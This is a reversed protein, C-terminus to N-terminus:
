KQRIYFFFASLNTDMWSVRMELLMHRRQALSARLVLLLAVVVLAPPSPRWMPIRRSALRLLPNGRRYIEAWACSPHPGLVNGSNKRRRRRWFSPNSNKSFIFSFTRSVSRM